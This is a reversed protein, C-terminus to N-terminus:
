GGASGDLSDGSHTLAGNLATTNNFFCCDLMLGQADFVCGAADLDVDDNGARDWALGLRVVANPPILDAQRGPPAPAPAARPLLKSPHM